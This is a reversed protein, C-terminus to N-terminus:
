GEDFEDPGVQGRMMEVARVVTILDEDLARMVASAYAPPVRVKSLDPQPRWGLSDQFEAATPTRERMQQWFESGEGKEPTAQRVALSWSVRYTAALRVLNRRVEERNKRVVAQRATVRPLLFEAAFADVLKEREHRSAHVGGAADPSFEDGLIMHGLEHAATSRRRGPELDLNVIAVAIDGDILSAGEVGEPLAVVAVFQGARECEEALSDLPETGRGLEDRLWLAADAAESADTVSGPFRLPTRPILLEEEVLQRVDRLWEALRATTRYDSKDAAIKEAGVAAARRSVVAPPESLFHSIPYDLERSIRALEVADIHRIGRELKSVMSRELGVREGMEGQSMGASIRSLRVREGILEWSLEQGMHAIM